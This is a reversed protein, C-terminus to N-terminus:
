LGSANGDPIVCSNSEMDRFLIKVNSKVMVWGCDMSRIEVCGSDNLKSDLPFYRVKYSRDGIRLM